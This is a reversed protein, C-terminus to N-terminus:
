ARYDAFEWHMRTSLIAAIRPWDDGAASTVFAVITRRITEANFEPAVLGVFRGTQGHCFWAESAVCVEFLDGDRKGEPGVTVTFWQREDHVTTPRWNPWDPLDAAEICIVEARM